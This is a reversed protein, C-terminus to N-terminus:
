EFCLMEWKCSWNWIKSCECQNKGPNDGPYCIFQHPKTIMTVKPYKLFPFEAWGGVQFLFIRWLTGALPIGWRHTNGWSHCLYKKEWSCDTGMDTARNTSFDKQPQSLIHKGWTEPVETRRETGWLWVVVFREKLWNNQFNPGSWSKLVHCLRSLCSYKLM